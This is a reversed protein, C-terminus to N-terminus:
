RQRRFGSIGRRVGRGIARFPRAIVGATAHVPGPFRREAAFVVGTLAAIGFLVFIAVLMSPVDNNFAAALFGPDGPRVVQGGITVPADSRTAQAIQRLEEETAPSTADVQSVAAQPNANDGGAKSLVARRIVSRCDTYEDLDSPLGNLAGQLEGQSYNGNLAGDKACDRIVDGSGAHAAPTAIAACALTAIM